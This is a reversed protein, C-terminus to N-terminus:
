TADHFTLTAVEFNGTAPAGSWECTMATNATGLVNLVPSTVVCTTTIACGGVVASWVVTGAGTAGDRLSLTLPTQAAVTNVSGSCTTGVHRLGASGAISATAQTNVAPTHNVAKDAAAVTLVSAASTSALAQNAASGTAVAKLNTGDTGAVFLAQTPVASGTSGLATLAQAAAERVRAPGVTLLGWVVVLAVVFGVFELIRKM